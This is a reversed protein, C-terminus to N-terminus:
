SGLPTSLLGLGKIEINGASESHVTLPGNNFAIIKFQDFIMGPLVASTIANGGFTIITDFPAMDTFDVSGIKIRIAPAINKIKLFNVPSYIDIFFDISPVLAGIVGFYIFLSHNFLGRSDVTPTFSLGFCGGRIVENYSLIKSISNEM